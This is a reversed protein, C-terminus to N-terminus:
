TNICNIADVAAAEVTPFADGPKTGLPDTLMLPKGGVYAYTNIGSKLGIPDSEHYRDTAPDYDRFYNYYLGFSCHDM